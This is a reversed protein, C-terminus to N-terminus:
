SCRARGPSRLWAPASTCPSGPSGTRAARDSVPTSGAVPHRARRAASRRPHAPRLPDCACPRRVDRAARRRRHRQAARRTARARQRVVEEFRDLLSAGAADGIESVQETSGVVDVFLVAALVRDADQSEARSGTVFEEIAGLLDSDPLPWHDASDREVLRAGPHARRPVTRARRPRVRQRPQPDRADAGRRAPTVHRVDLEFISALRSLATGPYRRLARGAGVM